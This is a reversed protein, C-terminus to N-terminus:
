FLVLLALLVQMYTWRTTSGKWCPSKLTRHYCFLPLTTDPAFGYSHCQRWLRWFHHSHFSFIWPGDFYNYRVVESEISNYRALNSLTSASIARGGVGGLFFPALLYQGGQQWFLLKCINGQNWGFFTSASTATMWGHFSGKWNIPLYGEWYFGFLFTSLSGVSM